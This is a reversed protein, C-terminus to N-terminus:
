ASTWQPSLLSTFALTSAALAAAILVAAVVTAVISIAHELSPSGSSGWASGDAREM